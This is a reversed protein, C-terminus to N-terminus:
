GDLQETEKTNESVERPLILDISKSTAHVSAHSSGRSFAELLQSDEPSIEALLKAQAARATVYLLGAIDSHVPTSTPVDSKTPDQRLVRDELSAFMLVVCGVSM